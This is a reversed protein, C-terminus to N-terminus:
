QIFMVTSDEVRFIPSEPKESLELPEQSRPMIYSSFETTMRREKGTTGKTKKMDMPSRESIYSVGQVPKVCDIDYVPTDVQRPNQIAKAEALQVDNIGALCESVGMYPTYVSKGESLMNYLENKIEEDTFQLYIRYRPNTLYEFLRQKRHYRPDPIEMTPTSRSGSNIKLMNDDATALINKPITFTRVEELPEVAVACNDSSLCDYYSDREYGLIGAVLGIITTRPPVSYTLRSVNGDIKKFHGFSSSITFVLTERDDPIETTM